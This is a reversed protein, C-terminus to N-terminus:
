IHPRSDPLGATFQLLMLTTMAPTASSQMGHGLLSLTQEAPALLGEDCGPKPRAPQGQLSRVSQPPQIADETVVVDKSAWHKHHGERPMHALTPFKDTASCQGDGHYETLLSGAGFGAGGGESLPEIDSWVGAAQESALRHAKEDHVPM